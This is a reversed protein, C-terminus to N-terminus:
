CDHHHSVIFADGRLGMADDSQCVSSEFAEVVSRRLCESGRFGTVVAPVFYSAFQTGLGNHLRRKFRLSIQPHCNRWVLPKMTQLGQCASVFYNWWSRCAAM